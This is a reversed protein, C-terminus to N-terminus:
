RDDGAENSRNGDNAGKMNGAASGSRIDSAIACDARGGATTPEQLGCRAPSPWKVARVCENARGDGGFWAVGEARDDIM